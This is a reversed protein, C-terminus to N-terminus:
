VTSGASAEQPSSSSDTSDDGTTERREGSPSPAQTPRGLHEELIWFAAAQVDAYEVKALAVGLRELTEGREAPTEGLAIMEPLAQNVRTWVEKNTMAPGIGMLLMFCSDPIFDAYEFVEGGLVFSRDRGEEEWRARREAIRRDRDEDFNRPM